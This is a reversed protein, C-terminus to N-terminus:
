GAFLLGQCQARIRRDRDRLRAAAPVLGLCEQRRTNIRRNLPFSVTLKCPVSGLVGETSDSLFDDCFQLSFTSCVQGDCLFSPKEVKRIWCETVSGYAVNRGFIQQRQQALNFAASSVLGGLPQSASAAHNEAVRDRGAPRVSIRGSIQPPSQRSMLHNVTGCDHLGRVYSCQQAGNDPKISLGCRLGGQAKGRM